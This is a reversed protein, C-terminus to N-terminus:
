VSVTTEVSVSGPVVTVNGPVVSVTVSGLVV